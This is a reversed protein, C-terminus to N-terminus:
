SGNSSEKRCRVVLVAPVEVWVPRRSAVAETARPESMRELTLGAGILANVYTSLTRHYAGVKGPPGTRLDSRWYGEDFYGAVTRVIGDPSETEGSRPSNYCPHLISFVFLGRPRLIRSVSELTPVLDSIDM